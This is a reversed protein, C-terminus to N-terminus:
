RYVRKHEVAKLQQALSRVESEVFEITKYSSGRKAALAILDMSEFEKPILDDFHDCDFGFYWLDPRERGSEPTPGSFELGGHVSILVNSEEVDNFDVGFLSHIRPLGVYGALYGADRNRLILCHYGAEEFERADGERAMLEHMQRIASQLSEATASGQM